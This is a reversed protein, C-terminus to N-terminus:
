ASARHAALARDWYPEAGFTERLHDIFLRLKAAHSRGPMRVAHIAREPARAPPPGFDQLLPVLRGAAVDESVLWSAIHVIGAGALAADRMCDKDDTRLRGRVALARHRNVGDFCWTQVPPSGTAVDICDHALLDEPRAPTGRRALYAPSACVVLRMPALRTALLESDALAAIRVAVDVRKEALDVYDDSVQLEVEMLPYRALFGAVAPAVIMRGFTAPATVTMLGRPDAHLESLSERAEALEALINRARPLFREGADTLMVRRSSRHLLRTGIEAELWDIRRTVSSVAVGRAKAVQSFSGASAVALFSDLADIM